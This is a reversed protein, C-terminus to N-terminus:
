QGTKPLSQMEYRAGGDLCAFQFTTGVLAMTCQRWMAKHEGVERKIGKKGPDVLDFHDHFATKPETETLCTVM